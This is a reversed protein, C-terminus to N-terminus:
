GVALHAVGAIVSANFPHWSHPQCMAVLVGYVHGVGLACALGCRQHLSVSMCSGCRVRAMLCRMAAPFCPVKVAVEKHVSPPGPETWVQSTVVGFSSPSGLHQKTRDFKLRSTIVDIARKDNPRLRSDRKREPRTSLMLYVSKWEATWALMSIAALASFGSVCRMSGLM